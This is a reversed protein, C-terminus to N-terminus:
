FSFWKWIESDSEHKDQLSANLIWIWIKIGTRKEFENKGHRMENKLQAMM